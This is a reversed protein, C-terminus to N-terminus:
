YQAIGLDTRGAYCSHMKSVSFYFQPGHAWAGSNLTSRVAASLIATAHDNVKVLSKMSTWYM